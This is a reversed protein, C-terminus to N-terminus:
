HFIVESVCNIQICVYKYTQYQVLFNHMDTVDPMLKEHQSHLHLELLWVEGGALHLCCRRDLTRRVSV